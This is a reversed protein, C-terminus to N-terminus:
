NEKITNTRELTDLGNTNQKYNDKITSTAPKTNEESSSRATVLSNGVNIGIGILIIIAVITISCAIANTSIRKFTDGPLFYEDIILLLVLMLFAFFVGFNISFLSLYFQYSVITMLASIGTGIGVFYWRRKDYKKDKETANDEDFPDYKSLDDLDSNNGGGSIKINSVLDKIEDFKENQIQTQATIKNSLEQFKQNDSKKKIDADPNIHNYIADLKNEMKDIREGFPLNNSQNM